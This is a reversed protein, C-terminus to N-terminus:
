ETQSADFARGIPPARCHRGALNLNAVAAALILAILVLPAHRPGASTKMTTTM